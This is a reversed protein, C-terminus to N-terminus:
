VRINTIKTSIFYASVFIILAITAVLRGVLTTHLADMFGNGLFNLVAVLVVPLILMITQENKKDSIVTDIELEIEITDSILSHTQKIVEGSKDSKGEIVNIVAAFNKIEIVNSRKAFDNLAEKLTINNALRDLIKKVEIVIDSKDNYILLLSHLASKFALNINEGSRIAVDLASLLDQFQSRLNKKRKIVESKIKFPLLFAAVIISVILSFSISKYFIYLVICSAIYYLLLYLLKDSVALCSVNYSINVTQRKFVQNKIQLFNTKIRM